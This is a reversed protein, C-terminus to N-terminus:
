SCRERENHEFCGDRDELVQKLLERGRRGAQAWTWNGHVYHAARRGIARAEDRHDYVWQMRDAIDDLSYSAWVMEEQGYIRAYQGSQEEGRVPLLINTAESVFETMGSYYPAICPLGCAMAELLQLGFGEGHSPYVFCDANRHLLSYQQDTVDRAIVSIRDDKVGGIMSRSGVKLVLRSDPLDLRRYAKMVLEGGKRGGTGGLGLSTGCWLFTFPRSLWRKEEEESDVPAFFVDPDIGYGSVYIPREVGSRRFLKKQEQAPVWLALSQNILHVWPAPAPYAEFMTMWVLDDVLRDGPGMFWARPGTAGVRLDYCRQYQDVIEVGAEALATSLHRGVRAYGASAGLRCYWAIRM